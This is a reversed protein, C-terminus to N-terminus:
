VKKASDSKLAAGGESKDPKERRGQMYEMFEDVSLNEIVHQDLKGLM